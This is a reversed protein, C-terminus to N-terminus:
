QSRGIEVSISNLSTPIDGEKDNSSILQDTPFAVVIRSTISIRSAISVKTGKALLTPHSPLRTAPSIVDVTPATTVPRTALGFTTTMCPILTSAGTSGEDPLSNDIERV